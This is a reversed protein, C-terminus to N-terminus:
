FFSSIFDSLIILMHIASVFLLERLLLSKFYFNSVIPAVWYTWIIDVGFGFFLYERLRGFNCIDSKALEVFIYGFSIADFLDLVLDLCKM